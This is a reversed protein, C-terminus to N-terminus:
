DDDDDCSYDAFLGHEKGLKILENLDYNTDDYYDKVFDELMFPYKLMRDIVIDIVKETTYLETSDDNYFGKYEQGTGYFVLHIDYEIKEKEDDNTANDHKCILEDLEKINRKIEDNIWDYYGIDGKYGNNRFEKFNQIFEEYEDCGSDGNYFLFDAIDENKYYVRGNSYILETDQDAENKRYEVYEFDSVYKKIVDRLENKFDESFTKM